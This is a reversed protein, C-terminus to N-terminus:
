PLGIGGSRAGPVAIDFHLVDERIGLGTYLAIAPDDGHDAQVFIVYAGCSTGIRQLDGILASAVGRRRHGEAVALDYIYIESRQQEFKDLVYAVLGGVVDDGGFAVLAIFHDRTLLRELYAHDPPAAAYSDADDFAEGFIATLKEMAAVEGPGLRRLQYGNM